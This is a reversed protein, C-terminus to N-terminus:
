TYSESTRNKFLGSNPALNKKGRESARLVGASAFSLISISGVVFNEVM